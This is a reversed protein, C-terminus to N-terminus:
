WLKHHRGSEYPASRHQHCAQTSQFRSGSGRTQGGRHRCQWASSAHVWERGGLETETKWCRLQRGGSLCPHQCHWSRDDGSMTKRQGGGTTQQHGMETTPSKRVGSPQVLARQERATDIRNRHARHEGDGRGGVKPGESQGGQPAGGGRQRPSPAAALGAVEEVGVGEGDPPDPAAVEQAMGDGERAGGAAWKRHLSSAGDEGRTRKAGPGAVPNHNGERTCGCSHCGGLLRASPVEAGRNLFPIVSLSM